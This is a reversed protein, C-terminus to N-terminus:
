YGYPPDNKPSLVGLGSDRMPLTPTGGREKRRIKKVRDVIEEILLLAKNTCWLAFITFTILITGDVIANYYLLNM